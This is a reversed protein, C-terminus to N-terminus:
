KEDITSIMLSDECAYIKALIFNGDLLRGEYNDYEITLVKDGVQVTKTEMINNNIIKTGTVPTSGAVRILHVPDLGTAYAM